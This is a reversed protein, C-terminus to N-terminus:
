DNNTLIKSSALNNESSQSYVAKELTKIDKRLSELVMSTTEEESYVFTATILFISFVFFKSVSTIKKKFM